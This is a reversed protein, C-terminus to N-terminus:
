VNVQKTQVGLEDSFHFQKHKGLYTVLKSSNLVADNQRNTVCHAATFVFYQISLKFFLQLRYFVHNYHSSISKTILRQTLSGNKWHFFSKFKKM